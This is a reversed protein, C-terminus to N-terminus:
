LLRKDISTCQLIDDDNSLFFCTNTILCYFWFSDQLVVPLTFAKTYHLLFLTCRSERNGTETQGM